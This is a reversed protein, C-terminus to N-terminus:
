LRLSTDLPRTRHGVPPAGLSPSTRSREDDGRDDPPEDDGELDFGREALEQRADELLEEGERMDGDLLSLRLQGEDMAVRIRVEGIDLTLQRPPSLQELQEVAELVRQVGAPLSPARALGMRSAATSPPGAPEVPPPASGGEPSTARPGEGASSREARGSTVARAAERRRGRGRPAVVEPREADEDTVERVREGAEADTGGDGSAVTAALRQGAEADGAAARLVALALELEGGVKALAQDDRVADAAVALSAALEVVQRLEALEVDTLDEMGDPLRLEALDLETLDLETLDLEELGLAALGLAALATLPSSGIPHARDGLQVDLLSAALEVVQGGVEDDGAGVLTRLADVLDEAALGHDAAIPALSELDLAELDLADLGDALQEAGAAGVVDVDVGTLAEVLGALPVGHVALGAVSSSGRGAEADRDRERAHAAIDAGRSSAAGGPAAEDQESSPRARRAREFAARFRDREEPDALETRAPEGAPEGHEVGAPPLTATPPM